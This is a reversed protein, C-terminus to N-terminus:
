VIRVGSRHLLDVSRAHAANGALLDNLFPLVVVKTSAGLAEALLDLAYTDAIGAAMKNITNFTAPAVIVADPPGASLDRPTGPDRHESRVPQGTLEELQAADIMRMANPTAVVRVNWGDAQALTVLKHVDPAPGAACVVILLNRSDAM